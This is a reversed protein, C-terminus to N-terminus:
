EATYLRASLGNFSNAVETIANKLELIRVNKKTTELDREFNKTKDKM